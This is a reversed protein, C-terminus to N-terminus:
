GLVAAHQVAATVVQGRVFSFLPIPPEIALVAQRNIAGAQRPLSLERLRSAFGGPRLGGVDVICTNCPIATEGPMAMPSASTMSLSPNTMERRAISRSALRRVFEGTEVLRDVDHRALDVSIPLRDAALEAVLVAGDERGMTLHQPIRVQMLLQSCSIRSLSTDGSSATRRVSRRYARTKWSM